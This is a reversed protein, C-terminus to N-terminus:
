AVIPACLLWTREDAVPVAAASTDEVGAISPCAVRLEIGSAGTDAFRALAARATPLGVRGAVGPSRIAEEAVELLLGSDLDSALM